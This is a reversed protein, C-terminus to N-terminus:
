FWAISNSLPRIDQAISSFVLGWSMGGRRRSPDLGSRRRGVVRREKARTAIPRYAHHRRGTRVGCSAPAAAVHCFCCCCCGTGTTGKDLTCFVSTGSSACMMLLHGSAFSQRLYM